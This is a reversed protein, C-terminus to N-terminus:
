RPEAVVGWRIGRDCIILEPSETRALVGTIIAVGAPLVDAREVVMGPLARREAVTLRLLADQRARVAAPALRLGTVRDPDYAALQLEVTALTTATGATGVVPVGRPLEVGALAREVDAALAAAEAATPPDHRLHREALRV